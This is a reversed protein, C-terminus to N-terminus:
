SDPAAGHEAPLIRSPPLPEVVVAAILFDRVYARTTEVDTALATPHTLCWFQQYTIWRSLARHDLGARLVGARECARLVPLWYDERAEVLAASGFVLEAMRPAVNPDLVADFLPFGRAIEIETMVLDLLARSSPGAEAFQRELVPRHSRDIEKILLAVLLDDRGSFHKYITQRAVGAQRAIDEMALKSLTLRQLLTTAAELIRDRLDGGERGSM